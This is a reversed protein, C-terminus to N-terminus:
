NSSDEDAGLKTAIWYRLKWIPRWRESLPPLYARFAAELEGFARERQRTNDPANLYRRYPEYMSHPLLMAKVMMLETFQAMSAQEQAEFQALVQQLQEREGPAQARAIVERFHKVQLNARYHGSWAEVAALLAEIRLKRLAGQAEEELRVRERWRLFVLGFLGALAVWLGDALALALRMWFVHDPNAWLWAM